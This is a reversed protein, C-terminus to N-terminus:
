KRSNFIPLLLLSIGGLVVVLITQTGWVVWGFAKGAQQDIGFFLLVAGVAIPYVGIGGNTTSVAFSGVIFGAMIAEFSLNSTEPIAYKIVYFMLLYMGWIFFTHFIFAKKNKMKLISRMGELLGKAFDKLKIIVPLKSRKIFKLILVGMLVLGFLIGISLFPNISLTEFYELLNDTQISLGVIVLLMLMILDAIRESVITGFAKDFPIKEYTSLSAGRLLEGSRPVGLNALYGAMVAMFSNLFHPYYGLPQLLFKWRYARSVHSLIGLFLSLSIYFPDALVINEWLEKREQASANSLSFWILFVGLM